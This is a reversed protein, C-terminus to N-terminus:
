PSPPKILVSNHRSERYTETEYYLFLENMESANIWPNPPFLINTNYIKYNYRSVSIDYTYKEEVCRVTFEIPESFWSAELADELRNEFAVCNFISKGIDRARRKLNDIDYETLVPGLKDELRKICEAYKMIVGRVTLPMSTQCKAM